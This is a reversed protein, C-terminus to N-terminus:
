QFQRINYAQRLKQHLFLLEVLNAEANFQMEVVPYSKIEGSNNRATIVAIEAAIAVKSEIVSPAQFMKSMGDADKVVLM